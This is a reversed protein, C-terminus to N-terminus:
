PLCLTGNLTAAAGVASGAFGPVSVNTFTAKRNTVDVTVGSVGSAATGDWVALLPAYGLGSNFAGAMEFNVSNLAYTTPHTTITLTKINSTALAGSVVPVDGWTYIKALPDAFYFLSQTTLTSIGAATAGAGSITLSGFSGNAAGPATGTLGTSTCNVGGGANVVNTSGGGGCGVLVLTAIASLAIGLETTKRLTAKM